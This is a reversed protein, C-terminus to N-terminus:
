VGGPLKIAVRCMDGGSLVSELLEVQVSVQLITEWMHKYFGAGCYCYLQPLKEGAAAANRVRPCHCYYSRRVEPDPEDLYKDLFRSKPIKTAIITDGELVGASGWCRAFVERIKNEDLKLSERLLTEFQQQLANHVQELDDTHQYLDRLPELQESPLHCACDSMIKQCTQADFSKELRVIVARTWEVVQTDDVVPDLGLIEDRADTGASAKIRASLKQRWYSDFEDM